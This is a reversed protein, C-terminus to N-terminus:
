VTKNRLRLSVVLIYAMCFMLVSMGGVIGIGDAILGMIFTVAGGGAVGMILLSSIADAQEPKHNLAFSFVIAFVNATAFGVPLFLLCFLTRVWMADTPTWALWMMVAYAAMAVAMTWPFIKKAPIRTLMMACLFSGVARAGFYLTNVSTAHEAGFVDKFIVPIFFNLGVDIGVILLICFFLSLLFKDGLLGFASAFTAGQGSASEKPIQTIGLWLMSLLTIGAYILFVYNWDGLGVTAFLVIQPGSLSSLAKVFQGLTMNGALRQPSSVNTLLPNLAVQIMTNGIGLLAFTVLYVPLSVPMWGLVMPLPILMGLVTIVNSVQVTTKRGIRNMMLGFPVSLFLFWILIFNPLLGALSNSLNLDAKINSTATGVIDVFGMVFFAFLVPLLAKLTPKATTNM